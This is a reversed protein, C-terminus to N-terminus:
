FIARLIEAIIPPLAAALSAGLAVRRVLRSHDASLRGVVGALGTGREMEALEAPTHEGAKSERPDIIRPAEGILAALRATERAQAGVAGLMRGELDALFALLDARTTQAATVAARAEERAADASREGRDAHTAARAITSDLRAITERTERIQEALYVVAESPSLDRLMTLDIGSRPTQPADHGNGASM